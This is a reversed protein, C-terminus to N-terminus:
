KKEKITPSVMIINDGRVVITGLQKSSTNEDDLEEAQELILNMHQDYGQLIGRLMKGNRLRVLVKGGLSESLVRLSIDTSM